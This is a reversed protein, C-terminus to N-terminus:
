SITANATEKAIAEMRLGSTSPTPNVLVGLLELLEQSAISRALPDQSYKLIQNKAYISDKGYVIIEINGLKGLCPILWWLYGRKYCVTSALFIGNRTVVGGYNLGRICQRLVTRAAGRLDNWTAQDYPVGNFDTALLVQVNCSGLVSDADVQSEKADNSHTHLLWVIVKNMRCGLTRCRTLYM